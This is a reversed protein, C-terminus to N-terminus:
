NNSLKEDKVSKILEDIDGSYNAKQLLIRAVKESVEAVVSNYEDVTFIGKSLLLKELVIVKLWLETQDQPEKINKMKWLM